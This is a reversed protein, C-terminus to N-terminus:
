PEKGREATVQAEGIETQRPRISSAKSRNRANTELTQDDTRHDPFSYVKIDETFTFLQIKTSLVKTKKTEWNIRTRTLFM